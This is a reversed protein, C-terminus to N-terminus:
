DTIYAAALNQTSRRLAEPQLQEGWPINQTWSGQKKKKRPPAAQSTIGQALSLMRNASKKIWSDLAPSMATGLLAERTCALATRLNRTM